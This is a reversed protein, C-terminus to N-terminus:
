ALAALIETDGRATALKEISEVDDFNKIDLRTDLDGGIYYGYTFAKEWNKGIDKKPIFDNRSDNICYISSPGADAFRIVDEPKIDSLNELLNDKLNSDVLKRVTFKKLDEVQISSYTNGRLSDIQNNIMADMLWHQGGLYVASTKKSNYELEYLEKIELEMWSHGVLWDMKQNLIKQRGSSGNYQLILHGTENIFSDIADWSREPDSEYFKLTTKMDGSGLPINFNKSKSRPLRTIAEDMSFSRAEMFSQTEEVEEPEAMDSADSTDGVERVREPGRETATPQLRETFMALHHRGEEESFLNLTSFQEFQRSSYRVRNSLAANNGIDFHNLCTFWYLGQQEGDESYDVIEGLVSIQDSIAHYWTGRDLTIDTTRM